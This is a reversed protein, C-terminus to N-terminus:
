IIGECVETQSISPPNSGAIVLGHVSIFLTEKSSDLEMFFCGHM